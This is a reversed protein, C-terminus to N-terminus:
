NGTGQMDDLIQTIVRELPMAEGAAWAQAFAEDGLAARARGIAADIAARDVPPVSTGTAARLAASAGFLQAARRPQGQADAVSALGELCEGVDVRNDMERYLTLSRQYQMTAREYLGQRRALNGLNTLLLAIGWRGEQEEFLVLSEAFLVAAREDDGRDLAVEGLNNLSFAIGRPDGLTRKIALSEEHLSAARQHDGEYRAVIGLNNLAAATGRPDDLDRRAALCEEYLSMARRYDGQRLAVSGLINIATAAGRRDGLRRYLGLSEESLTAARQHDGQETALASAADLARARWALSPADDGVPRPLALLKELWVRGESARGRAHWFRWLASGLRLGIEIQAGNGNLVIEGNHGGSEDRGGSRSAWDLAARLNDEERGLRALWASQEPGILGPAAHEALALYYTAHRAGITAWAGSAELRELGYERITQLMTVRVGGDVAADGAPEDVRVLSKDVLSSLVDLVNPLGPADAAGAACVAEAAELTAGGAFVALGQFVRREEAPLLDYSWAITNRLTQQRAPADRAGGTLLRLPTATLDGDLRALLAPPPLLKVRAAALEIALPLGDLRRCIAVIAAANAETLAFSPRAARARSVFLAVSAYRALDAAPPLPAMDPTALPPVALEHEGQIHLPARSTILVTLQRGAALLASVAPAAELVHEFNDLVLLMRRDRLHASVIELLSPEGVASVGLAGAVAAIVLGPDNLSALSVFVVGDAYRDRLGEAVQMALRTKGVGGPGTLTLVRAEDRTLLHVAAAEDHERGLLPNPAAPLLGSRRQAGPHAAAPRSPGRRRTVAADLSAREERSLGLAEALLRVTERYPAQRLGRELASIGQATLGAREALAEQSLGAARRYRRLLAGFSAERGGDTEGNKVGRANTDPGM